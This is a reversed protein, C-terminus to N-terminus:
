VFTVSPCVGCSLMPRAFVASLLTLQSFTVPLGLDHVHKSQIIVTFRNVYHSRDIM